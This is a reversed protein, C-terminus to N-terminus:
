KAQSPTVPAVPEATEVLKAEARMFDPLITKLHTDLDRIRWKSCDQPVCDRLAESTHVGILNRLAGLFHPPAVIALEGYRDHVRERELLKALRQAFRKTEIEHPDTHWSNSSYVNGVSKCVRGPASASLAERHARGKPNAIRRILRMDGHLSNGGFICARGVDAVLIWRTM